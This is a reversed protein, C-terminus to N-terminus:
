GAVELISRLQAVSGAQAVTDGHEDMLIVTPTSLIQHHLAQAMGEGTDVDVMEGNLSLNEVYTRVPPCNPCTERFFYAYSRVAAPDAASAAAIAPSHAGPTGASEPRFTVRHNYEERKGRNWNKLSRYYGVIRTYIETQTGEVQTLDNELESIRSEIELVREM